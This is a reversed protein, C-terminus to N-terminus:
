KIKEIFRDFAKRGDATCKYVGACELVKAFVKGIEDQVVKHINNATLEKGAMWQNAWDAHKSLVED